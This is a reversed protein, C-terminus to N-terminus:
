KELTKADKKFGDFFEKFTDFERRWSLGTGVQFRGGSTIDPEYRQYVRVKLSRADNLIYELVFDNGVFTGSNGLGSLQNNNLLSVDGRVKLRDNIDRSFSLEFASSRGDNNTNFASNRYSSYAVDFDITSIFAEEGFADKLLDKILLSVYTSLWESLTNIAADSIGFSLDSPLFQGAVILGFVQRNLENQDLLLLRRKNNAYRELDGDLNPFNLDFNIDPKTLLGSLKLTLDVDTAKRANTTVANETGSDNVLYEQIFPLIPTKLNEYDAEIDLTAAFPDGTWTVKSGPRVSFEKNIIKQFTFLYSGETIYYDGYMELEGDRPINLQLNGNGQGRLIDGVEEDFIIEGIAEDRVSLDMRLSVGTPEEATPQGEETYVGRNVFRVNEIPGAESGNNVPISLRSGRGVTAAVYIEPQRFTGTFVVRGTGLATGYFLPNFGPKLDLALFQDTDIRANLGLNKLRDHTIGGTVVAANGLRDILRTNALDFLTNTINVRSQYFRYRTQLYDITFAGGLADIYGSVDLQSTPGVVNLKANFLGTIDSVSGGVWYRGIDLPYGNIGVNLDLYNKREQASSPAETLDALNYTAEAIIQATDRNLNLYATLKSRPNPATLDLSLYGYDDGNMLFTDSRINAKIGEQKFVNAVSVNIDVEGSFNLAEYNWLSDILGLDLNLIDLNLGNNGLKNLRITRRGSRLSFNQADIYEPGFTLYNGGRIQWREQFIELVSEEFSLRFNQSDPLTLLGDLNIKDLLVNEESGGYTIGFNILEDDILSNLTIRNLLHKGGSFTSDVSFDLEGEGKSGQTRLVLDVMRLNGFIINPALLEAKLEDVFGDYEGSLSLDQLSGLQPNILRNLGRSNLVNFAFSFRNPPPVRRPAKIQLRHAWSPYYALLYNTLSGTVDDLDFRGVIEGTAIDSELKVVKQGKANFNSYAILSDIDINVTDLLVNFSDLEVRGEMESFNSGRLNLDINGSLAIPRTSLNLALLDFERLNADFDFSPVSDRFDLQGVFNLDINDDAIQFTGNFFKEELRGDVEANHYTYGRFNFEQITATLDAQAAAAELGIGNEIAGNFTVLGFEENQTWIGLDFDNLALQGLYRAPQREDIVMAMNFNARGIDTRLDGTAVFDTFFGDFRGRFRLGGLRDFNEPPDLDPFLRRLTRMNTSLRQLDLNLSESGRKALNRSGFSGALSSYPDLSLVVDRGRLNNVPGSFWGGINIKQGRNERFFPNFRLNRAFYLIDRVAVDSNKVRIDLRVEDNFDSWASWGNRFTFRLSDSLYSEATVLELDYLQLETGTIKLDQVSLRDLVFGSKEELSLHKLAAQFAGNYFDVETLELDVNSTGLRAFDVSTIDLAEIPDRRFNDLVYSGDIVEISNATIHLFNTDAREQVLSDMQRLVDSIPSPTFTTQRVLPERLEVSGIRVVQNPLDLDEMRLIGSTLSVDFRQGKVSDNQIFTIRQLDVRQLKLNLPNAPEDSTPLLKRLATALNSEADGLDRRIQFRTDAILIREINLGSFIGFDAELHQSYLLTDGYKDEIFLGKITLEDLWSIRVQEVEVRTELASSLAKTVRNALWDQVPQWQFLLFLAIPVMLLWLFLRRSWKWARGFRRPKKSEEIEPTQQDM